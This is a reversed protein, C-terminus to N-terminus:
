PVAPDGSLERLRALLRGRERQLGKYALQESSLDEIQRLIARALSDCQPHGKLTELANLHTRITFVVDGSGPLKRLTQRELRLYIESLSGHAGFSHTGNGPAPHYLAGDDYFGWNWRLYVESQPLNDFMRSIVDANRSGIGFGPVPGHIQAITKGFKDLLHWSSPFCLSGAALRWGEADRRMLILDEQVLSAAVMLPPTHAEELDVRGGHALVMAGQADRHYADPFHRLLHQTLLELLERQAERTDPTEVFTQRPAVRRLRAKEALYRPLQGDVEIWRGAEIKSVGIHFPPSSGDYPTHFREVSFAHM